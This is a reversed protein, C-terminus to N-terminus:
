KNWRPHDYAEPNFVKPWREGSLVAIVGDSVMKGVGEYAERTQAASHATAIFNPLTFLKHGPDMPEAEMVDVAAGAVAGDVLADYLADEDVIDGRACNVLFVGKRMLKFQKEGLMKRTEPASPMHLTLFRVESVLEDFSDVPTYGMERIVENKVFPDFVLGDIENAKFLKAVEKGIAEFGAVCAKSGKLGGM